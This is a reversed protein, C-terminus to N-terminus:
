KTTIKITIIVEDSMTWSDEGVHFDLRNITLSAQYVETVGTKTLVLPLSVDKTVDKITLKGNIVYGAGQQKITTSKFTIEPYKDVFFFEEKRLHNDRGNIGTNISKTKIKGEFRAAALDKPDFQVTVAYEGFKGDVGIGANKIKFSVSSTAYDVSHSKTQAFAGLTYIFSLSVIYIITKM